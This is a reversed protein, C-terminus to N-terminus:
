KLPGTVTLLGCGFAKEKGIGHILTARFLEADTITLKGEWVAAKFTVKKGGENGKRFSVWVSETVQFSDESLSFGYKEARTQLWQAQQQVTLHSLVKGRNGTGASKTIVPNARLRFNRCEGVRINDLFPQYELTKWGAPTGFQEAAAELRPKEESVLLLYTKGALPDIRWLRGGKEAFASEIAGHFLNPSVFAMQTKRKATDLEMRTLYM